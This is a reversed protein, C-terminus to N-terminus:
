EIEYRLTMTVTVEQSGAEITPAAEGGAGAAKM